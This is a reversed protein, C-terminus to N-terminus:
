PINRLKLPIPSKPFSTLDSRGLVGLLKCFYPSRCIRFRTKTYNIAAGQVRCTYCNRALQGEVAIELISVVFLIIPTELVM